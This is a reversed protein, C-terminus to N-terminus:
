RARRAHGGRAEAGPAPDKRGAADSKAPPEGGGKKKNLDPAPVDGVEGATRRPARAVASLQAARAPQMGLERAARDLRAPASREGIEVLLRQQEEVLRERERRLEESRYGYQVAVIKQRTAFIFGAALLVCAALLVAQRTFTRRDHERRVHPNPHQQPLRRM